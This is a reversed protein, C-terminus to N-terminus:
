AFVVTGVVIVVALVVGAALGTVVLFWEGLDRSPATM